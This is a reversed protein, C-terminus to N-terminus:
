STSIKISLTKEIEEVFGPLHHPQHEYHPLKKLFRDAHTLDSKVQEIKSKLQEIKQRLTAADIGGFFIKQNKEWERVKEEFSSPNLKSANVKTLDVLLDESSSLDHRSADSELSIHSKQSPSLSASESSIDNDVPIIKRKKTNLPRTNFM